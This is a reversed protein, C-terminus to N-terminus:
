NTTSQYKKNPSVALISAYHEAVWELWSWPGDKFNGEEAEM